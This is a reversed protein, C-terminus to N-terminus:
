EGRFAKDLVSPLLADLEAQTNAQLQELADVKAQLADLYAVIRHQEPLSPIPITLKRLGTLTINPRATEVKGMHLVRQALPSILFSMLFRSNLQPTPSIVAVAQNINADGIKDPVVASRGISAGVLNILVDGPRLASRSLKDHFAQPVRTASTIDVYGWLVNQSRLFLPGDSVYDFGQWKPSEGKTVRETVAELRTNIDNLSLAAFIRDSSAEWLMEAEGVAKARLGRAEEIRSALEEIHAVIRRQEDLPPLPIEYELVQQPRIAAYNTSGQASVQDDFAPTRVFCSLFNRDLVFDDVHFLFYHSSVIARDLADPVIGYGGVKADIEAVLFEGARCVQQKKTRIEAGLVTDRLVIGKAHLQVRCRKYTELDSITIFEKRHTLVEGLKVMRWKASM